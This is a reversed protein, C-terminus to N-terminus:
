RAITRVGAQFTATWSEYGASARVAAELESIREDAIGGLWRAYDVLEEEPMERFKLSFPPQIVQYPM